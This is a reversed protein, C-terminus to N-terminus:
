RSCTQRSRRSKRRECMVAAVVVSAHAALERKPLGEMVQNLNDLAYEHVSPQDVLGLCKLSLSLISQRLAKSSPACSAAEYLTQLGLEISYRTQSTVDIEKSQFAKAAAAAMAVEPADKGGDGKAEFDQGLAAQHLHVLIDLTGILPQALYGLNDFETVNLAELALITTGLGLTERDELVEKVWKFKNQVATKDARKTRKAAPKSKSAGTPQGVLAAAATRLATLLPVMASADREITELAEAAVSRVLEADDKHSLFVLAHVLTDREEQTSLSACLAGSVAGVAARRVRWGLDHRSPFHMCAVFCDFWEPSELLLVPTEGEGPIPHIRFAGLINSLLAIDQETIRADNAFAFSADTYKDLEKRLLKSLAKVRGETSGVAGLAGILNVAIEKYPYRVSSDLLFDMLDRASDQKQLDAVQGKGCFSELVESLTVHGTTLGSASKAM